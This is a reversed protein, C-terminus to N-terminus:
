RWDQEHKQFFSQGGARCSFGSFLALKKAPMKAFARPFVLPFIVTSIILATFVRVFGFADGIIPVDAQSLELLNQGLVGLWVGLYMAITLWLRNRKRKKRKKKTAKDKKGLDPDDPLIGLNFYNLLSM